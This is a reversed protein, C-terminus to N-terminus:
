TTSSTRGSELRQRGLDTISYTYPKSGASREVLGGNYLKKLLRATHERSKGLSAQIDRSTKTGNTVMELVLTTINHHGVDPLSTAATRRGPASRPVTKTNKTALSAGQGGEKVNNPNPQSIGTVGDVGGAGLVDMRIRMEVLQREYEDMRQDTQLSERRPALNVYPKVKYYIILVVLGLVFAGVLGVLAEPDPIEVSVM